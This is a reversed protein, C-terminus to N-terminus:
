REFRLAEVPTLKSARWAPPLASVVAVTGLAAIATLATRLNIPLGSFMDPMPLANVASALGWVVVSGTAGSLVALLLGELFFDLLIRRETAGVAKRLGIEHTREAVATMMTNMVGVGGLTLTVLAVVALFIETADFVKDFLEAGEVTDWVSLAGKDEPAFAHLSGLVRRAQAQAAQWEAVSAPRYLIADLRGETVAEVYPPSDRRLSSVPVLIKENDWGNYSSNQNKEPMVGIVRYPHGNLTIPQGLFNPREEFLQKKVSSGLVCVRRAEAVDEASVNRGRDVPLTRLSLYEPTVGVIAFRGSNFSSSAAIDEGRLEGSVVELLPCQERLTRVDRETLWVRRGARQGGAQNETRGGFLFVLNDGIQKMNKRQGQRFGDCLASMLVLSVIGWAIGFMTLFSRLKNRWVNAVTQGLLSQLSNLARM